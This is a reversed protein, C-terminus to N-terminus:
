RYSPDCYYGDSCLVGPRGRLSVNGAQLEAHLRATTWTAFESDAMAQRGHPTIPQTVISDGAQPAAKASQLAAIQAQAAELQARLAALEGAEDVALGEATEPETTEPETTTAGPVEVRPQRPPM